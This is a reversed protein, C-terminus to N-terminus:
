CVEANKEEKKPRGKRKVVQQNKDINKHEVFQEVSQESVQALLEAHRKETEIRLADYDRSRFYVDGNCFNKQKKDCFFGPKNKLSKDCLCPLVSDM